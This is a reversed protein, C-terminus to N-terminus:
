RRYHLEFMVCGERNERLALSAQRAAALEFSQLLGLGYGFTSDLPEVGLRAAREAPIPKGTDTVALLWAVGQRQLSARIMVELMDDRKQLANQLLNDLVVTFLQEDILGDLEPPTGFEVGMDAYRCTVRQWWALTSIMETTEEVQPRSLKALTVELRRNIEPLQRSYLAVIVAPDNATRTLEVLNKLAQLLNKIDHTLRAGTQHVAKIYAQDALRQERLKALYFQGLLAGVLQFQVRLAPAALVACHLDLNLEPTVVHVTHRPTVDGFEGSLAGVSWTGGCVSHLELLDGTAQAMFGAPTKEWVAYEALRTLWTEFPTGLQLIRMSFITGVGAFGARPNWLWGLAGLCLGLGVMVFALAEFYSYKVVLQLVLAAFPVLLSLLFLLVVYFFDLPVRSRHVAPEAPLAVLVLFLAALLYYDGRWLPQSPNIWDPVAIAWLSFALSALLGFHFYRARKANATFVGAGLLALLVALWLVLLGHSALLYMALAATIVQVVGGWGLRMQASVVPQWLLVVGLQSVLLFRGITSSPDLLLSLWALAVLLLPLVRGYAFPSVLLRSLRHLPALAFIM